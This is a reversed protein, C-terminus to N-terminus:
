GLKVTQLKIEPLPYELFFLFFVIVIKADPGGWGVWPLNLSCLVSISLDHLAVSTSAEPWISRQWQLLIGQREESPVWPWEIPVLFLWGERSNLGTKLCCWAVHDVPSRFVSDTWNLQKTTDWEKCGWPSCCSLSGQGDGVGPAQEFEHGNLQHHWGVMENETM